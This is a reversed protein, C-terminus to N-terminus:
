FLGLQRPALGEFDINLMNQFTKANKAAHGGSNNNFIITVEESEKELQHTLQKIEELEEETYDYLTREKRWDKTHEGLWGKYNRGHLRIITQTSNTAIPTLPVSNSPTQPQDVVVHIFEMEEMFELTQKKHEKNLWSPHRFEVAVPLGEMHKRVTRLYEVNERKCDFYPPFQFLFAKIRGRAVMPNFTTKFTDFMESISTFEEFWNKHKTMTAHAKPIFQFVNPTKELWSLINKEPPIAYFSTDMEVVPFHGAYDELKRKSDPSVLPHDSWGTLGIQIM